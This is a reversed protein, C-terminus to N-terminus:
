HTFLHLKSLIDDEVNLRILCVYEDGDLFRQEPSGERIRELGFSLHNRNGDKDYAMIGSTWGCEVIPIGFERRIDNEFLFGEVGLRQDLWVQLNHVTDRNVGRSKSFKTSSEDFFFCHPPLCVDKNTDYILKTEETVNGKEDVVVKKAVPGGTVPGYLYEDLKDEGQDEIVRQKLNAYATSLNAALITANALQKNLSMHSIGQLVEGAVIVTVDKGVTKALDKVTYKIDARVFEKREKEDRWGAGPDEEDVKDFEEIENMRHNHAWFAQSIKNADKILMGTGVGVLTLGAVFEIDARHKYVVVGVRKCFAKFGM